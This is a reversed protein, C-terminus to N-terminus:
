VNCCSWNGCVVVCVMVMKKKEYDKNGEKNYVSEEKKVDLEKYLFFHM